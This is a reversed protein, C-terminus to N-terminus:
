LTGGCAISSAIARLEVVGSPLVIVGITRALAAQSQRFPNKFNQRRRNQMKEDLFDAFRRLNKNQAAEIVIAGAAPM